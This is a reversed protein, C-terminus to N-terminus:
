KAAGELIPGASAEHVVLAEPAPTASARTTQREIRWVLFGGVATILVQVVFLAIWPYGMGVKYLMMTLIASGAGALTRSTTLLGQVRGRANDPSFNAIFASLAPISVSLLIGELLGVSAIFILDTTFGYSLYITSILLGPVIILPALRYKDAWKGTFPMLVMLPLSFIIFTLGIFSTSANLDDLWITWLSIFIGDAFGGALTLVMAAILSPIFFRSPIQRKPKNDAAAEQETEQPKQGPKLNHMKRAMVLAVILIAVGGFIFPASYGFYDVMPGGVAPGMMFGASTASGLWGFASGREKAPVVDMVYANAAPFIAAGAIGEIFRLTIFYWPHDNLLFAFSMFGAVVMGAIMLPKRGIKDSAWGGPLQFIFQGILLSSALLGLEEATAGHDRAYIARIPVVAGIGVLMIFIGVCMLGLEPYRVM